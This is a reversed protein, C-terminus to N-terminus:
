QGLGGDEGYRKVMDNYVQLVDGLTVVAHQTYTDNWLVWLSNESYDFNRKLLHDLKRGLFNM